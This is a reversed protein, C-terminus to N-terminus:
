ESEAHRKKRKEENREVRRDDEEGEEGRSSVWRDNEQNMEERYSEKRGKAM